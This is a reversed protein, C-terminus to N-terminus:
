VGNDTVFVMLPDGIAMLFRLIALQLTPMMSTKSINGEHDANFAIKYKGSIVIIDPHSVEGSCPFVEM